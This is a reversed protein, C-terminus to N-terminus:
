ELPRTAGVPDPQSPGVVRVDQVHGVDDENGENDSHSDDM